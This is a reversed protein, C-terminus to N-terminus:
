PAAPAGPERRFITIGPALWMEDAAQAGFPREFRAAERWGGAPDHVPEWWQARVRPDRAFYVSDASSIVVVDGQPGRPHALLEDEDTRVYRFQHPVRLNAHANGAAEVTAGAPVNERLWREAPLRPDALMLWSVLPGGGLGLVVVLAALSSRARPPLSFGRAALPLALLLVPLLFRPYVYGIRAVFGALHALVMWGRLGLGRWSVRRALAFAVGVVVPWGLALPLYGGAKAFLAIFGAPTAPYKRPYLAEKWLFEYHARWGALNFPLQWLVAYTALAALGVALVAGLRREPRGPLRSAQWACALGVVVAAPGSQEKCCVAAVAAAAAGCLKPLSGRASEALAAGLFLWLLAHVDANSTRGYYAFQASGLLLLPVLWRPGDPDDERARRASVWAIGLACAVTTLRAAVVLTAISFDPHRFGYPWVGSPTGLERVLKMVALVPLYVAGMLYYPLPGYSSYWGHGFRVALGKLVSGPALNDLDWPFSAHAGWWVPVLLVLALVAWALKEGAPRRVTV